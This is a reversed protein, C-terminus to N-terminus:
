FTGFTVWAMDHLTDSVGAAMAPTMSSACAKGGKAGLAKAAPDKGDDSVVDVTEGTAIRGVLMLVLAFAAVGM